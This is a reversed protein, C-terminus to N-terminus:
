LLLVMSNDMTNGSVSVVMALALDMSRVVCQVVVSWIGACARGMGCDQDLSLSAYMDWLTDVLVGIRGFSAFSNMVIDASMNLRGGSVGTGTAAPISNSHTCLRVRNGDSWAGSAYAIDSSAYVCRQIRSSM